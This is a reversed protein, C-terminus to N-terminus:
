LADTLMPEHRARSSFEGGFFTSFYFGGPTVDSDNGFMIGTQSFAHM